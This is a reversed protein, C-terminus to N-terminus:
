SDFFGEIQDMRLSHRKNGDRCAVNITLHLVYGEAVPRNRICDLELAEFDFQNGKDDRIKAGLLLHTLDQLDKQLLEM